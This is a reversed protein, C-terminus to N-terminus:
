HYTYFSVSSLNKKYDLLNQFFDTLKSNTGSFVVMLVLKPWSLFDRFAIDVHLQQMDETDVYGHILRFMQLTLPLMNLSIWPYTSVYGHILRFMQLTLPLM